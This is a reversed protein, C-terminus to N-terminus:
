LKKKRESTNCQSLQVKISRELGSQPNGRNNKLQFNESKGFFEWINQNNLKNKIFVLLLYQTSRKDQLRKM